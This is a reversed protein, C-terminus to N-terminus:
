AQWLVKQSERDVIRMGDVHWFEHKEGYAFKHGDEAFIDFVTHRGRNDFEEYVKAVKPLENRKIAKNAAKVASEFTKFNRRKSPGCESDYGAHYGDHYRTYSGQLQFNRDSAM